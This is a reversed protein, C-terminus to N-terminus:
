CIGTQSGRLISSCWGGMESTGYSIMNNGSAAKDRYPSTAAVYPRADLLHQTPQLQFQVRLLRSQHLRFVAEIKEAFMEPKLCILFGFARNSWCQRTQGDSRDM